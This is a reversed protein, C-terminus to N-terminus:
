IHKEMVSHTIQSTVYLKIKSVNSWYHTDNRWPWKTNGLVLHFSIPRYTGREYRILFSWTCEGCLVYIATPKALHKCLFFSCTNPKQPVWTASTTFFRCTLAPGILSSLEMGQLLAHCGMRTNKGPSDWPYLLRAPQLGCSQLSNPM